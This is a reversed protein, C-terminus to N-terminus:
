FSYFQKILDQLWVTKAFLSTPWQKHRWLIEPGLPGQIQRAQGSSRGPFHSVGQKELWSYFAEEDKLCLVVQIHVERNCGWPKTSGGSSQHQM